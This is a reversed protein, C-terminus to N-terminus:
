SASLPQTGSQYEFPGAAYAIIEGSNYDLVPVAVALDPGPAAPTDDVCTLVECGGGAGGGCQSVM